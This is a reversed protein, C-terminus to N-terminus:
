NSNSDNQKQIALAKQLNSRADTFDPKIRLAEQFHFIAEKLNGQQALISGINGHATADDPEIRLAERFHVLAEELRGQRTLVVGFDNHAKKHDPQTKLVESFHHKAEDLRGHDVLAVGLQYHSEILDPNIQLAEKFNFIAEELNGQDKLAVGLNFFAKAHDPKIGLVIRSHHIAEKFNGLERLAVGLNHYADPCESDIRIAEEFHAIAQKQNGQGTLVVGLGVYADKYSPKLRIAEQFHAMAEEFNGQDRLATGMNYHAKEFDPNIRLAELYHAIAEDILGQKKLANGLNNHAKMYDPNIRLAELYHAIAKDILGQKELITGLNYHAEEYDPKIRLAELYHAIAEETRGQNEMVNGLNNHAEVFDPKIRLAKLYHAIAEKTRGQNKLVNGLNNHAEEYDPKIRLAQLYHEIAEETRGQNQLATGLNNHAISNNSTVKLTHEFLTISNKWYEVQKWAVVMLTSLLITASVTLWIKKRRWQAVLEPAGWAVIIFLGILPVYAFRDAMAPWLGVQVLGIVPVLTGLFWLWGIIFYPTRKISRIMFFSIGILLVLAGLTQWLPVMRPYPYLVALDQPWIMKSIYKVYSVLANAIRLKMPVLSMSIVNGYNKVSLSSLSVSLVALAFLPIKELVLQFPTSGRSGAITAKNTEINRNNSLERYSFRGLPWHDLLLLVCPLTVLMPKTMLGLAFVLFILLYRHFSPQNSYYVYALMTLMWFFTSLVNKRETIWVVTDVNIPHIAFLIAVLASRWFAGTMWKFVIFLLLSNAIHFIISTLHHKGPDLGYLQCDLMHSLWALPHWYTKEKEAFSFAWRISESTLGDKVHHNEYVYANDDFNV